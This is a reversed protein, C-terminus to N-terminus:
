IQREARRETYENKDAWRDIDTERDKERHIREQKGMQRYIWTDTRETYGDAQGVTQITEQRDM